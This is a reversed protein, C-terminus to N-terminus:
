GGLTNESFYIRIPYIKLCIWRCCLFCSVLKFLFITVNIFIQKESEQIM